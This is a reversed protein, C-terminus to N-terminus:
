STNMKIKSCGFDELVFISSLDAFKAGWFVVNSDYWSMEDYKRDQLSILMFFQSYWWVRFDRRVYGWSSSDKDDNLNKLKRRWSTTKAQLAATPSYSTRFVSSASGDHKAFCIGDIRRFYCCAEPVANKDSTYLLLSSFNHFFFSFSFSLVCM